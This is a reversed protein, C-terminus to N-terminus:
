GDPRRVRLALVRALEEIPKPHDDVRLDIMRDDRNAAEQEPM